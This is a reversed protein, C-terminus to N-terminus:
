LQAKGAQHAQARLRRSLGTSVALWGDVFVVNLAAFASVGCRALTSAYVIPALARELLGNQPLAELRATTTMADGQDVPEVNDIFIRCDWESGSGCLRGGQAGRHKRVMAQLNLSM